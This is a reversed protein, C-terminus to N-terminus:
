CKYNYKLADSVHESSRCFDASSLLAYVILWCAFKLLNNVSKGNM